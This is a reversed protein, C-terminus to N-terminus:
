LAARVADPVRFRRGALYQNLVLGVWERSARFDRFSIFTQGNEQLVEYSGAHLELTSPEGQLALQATVTRQQSNIRLETVQGFKQIENNVLGKVCAEVARDKIGALANTLSSLMEM